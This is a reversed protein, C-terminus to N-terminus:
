YQGQSKKTRDITGQGGSGKNYKEIYITDKKINIYSTDKKIEEQKIIKPQITSQNVKKELKSCNIECLNGAGFTAAVILTYWLNRFDKLNQYKAM